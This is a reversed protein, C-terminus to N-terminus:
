PAEFPGRHDDPQWRDLEEDFWYDRATMGRIARTLTAGLSPALLRSVPGESPDQILVRCPGEVPGSCDIAVDPMGGTDLFGVWGASWYRELDDGKPLDRAALERRLSRLKLGSQLGTLALGPFVEARYVGPIPSRWSWWLETERPSRLGVGSLAQRVEDVSTAAPGLREWVIPAHDALAAGFEALLAEDLLRIQGM